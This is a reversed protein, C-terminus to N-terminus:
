PLTLRQLAWACAVLAIAAAAGPTAVRQYWTKRRLAFALPVFVAVVALQGLEVGLNFAFLDTVLHRRDLGLEALSAAFGLGHVLGFGGALLWLRRQVLPLVVNVAGFLVTLAIGTEVYRSPIRVLQLAGLALTLSHAVTFATVVKLVESLTARLSEAAIWTGDRRRVIAPLLLTALFLLHDFGGAIHRMGEFVWAGWRTGASTAAGRLQISRRDAVLVGSDTVNGATMRSVLARHSLNRDVLLEYRLEVDAGAALCDAPFRLVAYRGDVHEDVLLEAAGLTCPAGAADVRTLGVRPRVYAELRAQAARLEGWTIAGDADADLGVAQELDVLALDLQLEDGVRVFATSQSHAQAGTCWALLVAAFVGVLRANM